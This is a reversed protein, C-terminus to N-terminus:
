MSVAGLVRPDLPSVEYLLSALLRTVIVSSLLGVAVGAATLGAARKLVSKVVVHPSAGIAMRVGIERRTQAVLSSLVSCLGVAALLLAVGSFAAILTLVQQRGALDADVIQDMTRVVSVPQAPDISWVARRLENAISMPTVSTRVAIESPLFFSIATQTFPV